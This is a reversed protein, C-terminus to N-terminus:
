SADLSPTVRFKTTAESLIRTKIVIKQSTYQGYQSMDPM